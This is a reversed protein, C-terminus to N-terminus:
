GSLFSIMGVQAIEQNGRKVQEADLGLERNMLIRALRKKRKRLVDQYNDNLGFIGSDMLRRGEPNPVPPLKPPPGKPRRGRRRGLGFLGAFTDDEEEADGAETGRM